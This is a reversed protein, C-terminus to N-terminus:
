PKLYENMERWPIDEMAALIYKPAMSNEFHPNWTLYGMEELKKLGKAIAGEM